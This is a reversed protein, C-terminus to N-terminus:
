KTESEAAVAVQPTDSRIIEQSAREGAEIKRQAQLGRAATEKASGKEPRYFHHVNKREEEWRLGQVPSTPSGKRGREREVPNEFVGDESTAIMHDYVKEAAYRKALPLSEDNKIENFLQVGMGFDATKEMRDHYKAYAEDKTMDEVGTGELPHPTFPQQYVLNGHGYKRYRPLKTKHQAVAQPSTMDYLGRLTIVPGSAEDIRAQLGASIAEEGEDYAITPAVNNQGIMAVVNDVQSQRLVSGNATTWQSGDFFVSVTKGDNVIKYEQRAM